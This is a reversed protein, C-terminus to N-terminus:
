VPDIRGLIVWRPNPEPLDRGEPLRLPALAAIIGNMSTHAITMLNYIGMGEMPKIGMSIDILLPTVDKDGTLWSLEEDTYADIDEKSFGGQSMIEAFNSRLKQCVLLMDKVIQMAEDYTLVDGYTM